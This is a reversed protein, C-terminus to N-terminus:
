SATPTLLQDDSGVLQFPGPASFHLHARSQPLHVKAEIPSPIDRQTKPMQIADYSRFHLIEDHPPPEAKVAAMRRQSRRKMRADDTSKLTKLAVRCSRQEMQISDKSHPFPCHNRDDMATKEDEDDAPM